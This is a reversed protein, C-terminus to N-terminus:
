TTATFSGDTAIIEGTALPNGTILSPITEAVEDPTACCRLPTLRARREMLLDYNGGLQEEMSEGARWGPDV